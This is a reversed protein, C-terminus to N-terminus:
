DDVLVRRRSVHVRQEAAAFDTDADGAGEGVGGARHVAGCQDALLAQHKAGRQAAEGVRFLCIGESSIMTGITMLQASNHHTLRPMVQFVRRTTAATVSTMMTQM